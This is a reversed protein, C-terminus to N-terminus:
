ARPVPVYHAIDSAADAESFHDLFNVPQYQGNRLGAPRGSQCDPLGSNPCTRGFDTTPVVRCKPWVPCGFRQRHEARAPNNEGDECAGVVFGVSGGLRARRAGLLARGTSLERTLRAFCDAAGLRPLYRAPFVRGAHRV